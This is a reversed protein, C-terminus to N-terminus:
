MPAKRLRCRKAAGCGTQCSAHQGASFGIEEPIEESFLLALNAREETISALLSASDLSQKWPIFTSDAAISGSADLLIVIRRPRNGGQINEVPVTNGNVKVEL